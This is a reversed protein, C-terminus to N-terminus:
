RVSAPIAMIAGGSGTTDYYYYTVSDKEAAGVYKANPFKSRMKKTAALNERINMSAREFPPATKVNNLQANIGSKLTRVKKPFIGTEIGEEIEDNYVENYTKFYLEPNKFRYSRVTEGDPGISETMKSVGAVSTAALNAIESIRKLGSFHIPELDKAMGLQDIVQLTELNRQVALAQTAQIQAEKAEFEQKREQPTQIEAEARKADAADEIGGLASMITQNRLNPPLTLTSPDITPERGALRDLTAQRLLESQEGRASASLASGLQFGFSTPSRASLAMAVQALQDQVVPDLLINGLKGIFGGEDDQVGEVAVPALINQVFDTTPPVDQLTAEAQVTGLAKSLPEDAVDPTTTVPLADHVIPHRTPRTGPGTPDSIFSDSELPALPASGQAQPTISPLQPTIGPAQHAAERGLLARIVRSVPDLVSTSKSEPDIQAGQGASLLRFIDQSTTGSSM